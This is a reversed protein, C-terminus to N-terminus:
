LQISLEEYLDVAHDASSPLLLLRLYMFHYNRGGTYWSSGDTYVAKESEM